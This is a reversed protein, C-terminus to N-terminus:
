QAPEAWLDYDDAGVVNVLLADGPRLDTVGDLYVKGDIEPADAYCRGIAGEEDVVDILVELQQGIRQQLRQFVAGVIDAAVRGIARFVPSGM